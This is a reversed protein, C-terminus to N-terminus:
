QKRVLYDKISTNKDIDSKSKVKRRSINMGNSTLNVPPELGSLQIYKGDNEADEGPFPRGNDWKASEKYKDADVGAKSLTDYVKMVQIWAPEYLRFGGSAGIVWPKDTRCEISKRFGFMMKELSEKDFGASAAKEDNLDQTESDLQSLYKSAVNEIDQWTFPVPVRSGEVINIKSDAYLGIRNSCVSVSDKDVALHAKGSSSSIISSGTRIRLKKAAISVTGDLGDNGSIIRLDNRARVNVKKGDVVISQNRTRLTIGSLKSDEGDSGDWAGSDKGRSEIIVGGSHETEDAGGLIEMNKAASLRVDHESAHIDVSNQAKQVIDDGAITLATQGPLTLVNGACSISVNGGLMVIESGWADRVIVSGDEGIYVGARRKDYENLEVTKNGGFNPDYADELPSLEEEEPVDFDSAVDKGLGDVRSYQNKLDYAQRDFLELQRLGPDGKEHNFPELVQPEHDISQHPDTPYAKRVPVPIRGTREIAIMGAASLRYQGSPDITERSVGAEKPYGVGMVRIKKDNPDPRLCFKSVIHGFYGSLEKFRPRMTQNEGDKGNGDTGAPAEADKVWVADGKKWGGLREEQYLAINRETSLYRGNHFEYVSGSLSHRQYFECTLRALNSLASLRLSAGGGLLTVSFLGGKIGCNHQNVHAFEGPYVDTPRFHTSIQTSGDFFNRMPKMMSPINRDWTEKALDDQTYLRRHYQDPDNLTDGQSTFNLYYPIRGVIIGSPIGAAMQFVLVVEGERPPYTASFGYSFSLPEDAILCGWESQTQCGPVLVLATHTHPNYYKVMGMRLPELEKFNGSLFRLSLPDSDGFPVREGISGISVTNITNIQAM